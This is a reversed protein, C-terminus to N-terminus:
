GSNEKAAELQKTGIGELVPPSDPVEGVGKIAGQQHKLHEMVVIEGGELTAELPHQHGHMGIAFIVGMTLIFIGILCGWLLYLNDAKLAVAILGAIGGIGVLAQKGIVGGFRIRTLSKRDIGFRNLLDTFEKPLTM